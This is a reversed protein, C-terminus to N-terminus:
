PTPFSLSVLAECTRKERDKRSIYKSLVRYVWESLWVSVDLGTRGNGIGNGM